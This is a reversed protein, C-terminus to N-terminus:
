NSRSPPPPSPLSKLLQDKLNNLYVQFALTYNKHLAVTTSISNFVICFILANILSVNHLKKIGNLGKKYNLSCIDYLFLILNDALGMSDNDEVIVDPKM